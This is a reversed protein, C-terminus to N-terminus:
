RLDPCAFAAMAVFVGATWGLMRAPEYEAAGPSGTLADYKEWLAGTEEFQATATHLFARAVRMADDTRGYRGLGRCVMLQVPPWANPYGWQYTRANPSDACTSVGHTLELRRLLRMTASAESDTAIGYALPWFSAANVVGTTEDAAIDYDNFCGLAPDWCYRRLRTLRDAARELWRDADSRGLAKAFQAFNREYQYLNSNLDIPAHDACRRRFRPTFDHGSEAEAVYHYAVNRMTPEDTKPMDLRKVLTDEYFEVLDHTTAEHLYRNLGIETTRRTMWFDYEARLPEWAAALWGRDQTREWIDRVMMSLYPPQSRNLHYVANSNLVFGFKEVMYFMNAVNAQALDIRDHRLLGLHAFYTDWYYLEQFRDSACPATFEHPLYLRPHADHGVRRVTSEWAGRIYALVEEIATQQADVAGTHVGATYDAIGEIM